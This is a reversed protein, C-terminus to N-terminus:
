ARAEVTGEAQFLSGRIIWMTVRYGEELRQQSNIAEIFGARVVRNLILCSIRGASSDFKSIVEWCSM